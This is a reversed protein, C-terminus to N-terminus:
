PQVKESASVRMVRWRNVGKHGSETEEREMWFEEGSVGFRREKLSTFIKGIAIRHNKRQSLCDAIEEPIVERIGSGEASIADVFSGVNFWNNQRLDWMYSLFSEWQRPTDDEQDIFQSYNALFHKIGAHAVIGGIKRHWDEFSGVPSKVAKPQNASYWARAIILLAHLLQSRNDRVWELLNPHRYKRGDGYPKAQKANLRIQYCRRPIDGSPRINNGTVIWTSMNVANMNKSVGLIRAEYEKATLALALAPSKLPGELNDFAILQRGCMLSSTIQKQMEEESRPYPIMSSPRGTVIGSLVDILLSKGTGAQPADVVALPTCGYITPRMIPTLLLGLANARSAEGDYPFDGIAEYVLDVAEKIQDDDPEPPLPFHTLGSSPAYYVCSEPDYGPRNLITGDPRLTPVETVSALAPFPLRDVSVLDRVIEPPPFTGSMKGGGTVRMWNASRSLVGRIWGETATVVSPRESEDRVVHCIEGSRIFIFPPDNALKLAAIADTTINRLQRSSVIIEPLTSGPDEALHLTKKKPAEPAPSM